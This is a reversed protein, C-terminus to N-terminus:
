IRGQSIEYRLDHINFSYESVIKNGNEYVDWRWYRTRKVKFVREGFKLTITRAEVAKKNRIFEVTQVAKLRHDAIMKELKQVRERAKELQIKAREIKAPMMPKTAMKRETNKMM